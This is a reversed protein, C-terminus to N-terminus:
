DFASSSLLSPDLLSDLQDIDLEESTMLLDSTTLEDLVNSTHPAGFLYDDLSSSPYQQMLSASSTPTTQQQLLLAELNAPSNPSHPNMLGQTAFPDALLDEDLAYPSLVGLMSTADEQMDTSSLRPAQLLQQEDYEALLSSLTSAEDAKPVSAQLYPNDERVHHFKTNNFPFKSTIPPQQATTSFPSWSFSHGKDLTTSATASAIGTGISPMANTSSEGFTQSHHRVVLDQHQPDSSWSLSTTASLPRRLQDTAATPPITGSLIQREIEKDIMRKQRYLRESELRLQEIHAPMSTALPSPHTAIQHRRPDDWTTTQHIHNVYYVQGAATQVAEWGEPLGDAAAMGVVGQGPQTALGPYPRKTRPDLWTTTKTREDIFYTRGDSTKGVSWGAPLDSFELELASMSAQHSSPNGDWSAMSWNSASNASSRGLALDYSRQRLHFTSFGKDGNRLTAQESPSRFQVFPDAFQRGSQTKSKKASKGPVKAKNPPKTPSSKKVARSSKPAKNGENGQNINNVNSNSPSLSILTSSEGQDLEHKLFSKVDM